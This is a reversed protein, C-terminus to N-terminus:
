NLFEELIQGFDKELKNKLSEISAAFLDLKIRKITITKKLISSSVQINEISTAQHAMQPYILIGLEQGLTTIYTLIQYIDSNNDLLKYKTDIPLQHKELLIDPRIFLSEGKDMSLSVQTGIPIQSFHEILFGGIFDEFIVEMPLLVSINPQSGLPTGLKQSLFFYKCMELLRQKMLENANTQIKEFDAINIQVSSVTDYQHSLNELLSQNQSSTAIAKLQKITFKLIQNFLNNYVLPQHQYRVKDWKGTSLNKKTYATINLKGKLYSSEGEQAEYYFSANKQLYELLTQCFLAILLELFSVQVDNTTHSKSWTFPFKLRKSFSLYYFIHEWILKKDVNTDNIYKPLIEIKIGRWNIFGVYNKARIQNGRISFIQQETEDGNDTSSSFLLGRNQWINDLFDLFAKRDESGEIPLLMWEGYEYLTIQFM